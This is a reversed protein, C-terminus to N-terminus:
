LLVHLAPDQAKCYSRFIDALKQLPDGQIRELLALAEPFRGLERLLEAKMLLTGEDSEDLIAVLAEMNARRAEPSSTPETDDSKPPPAPDDGFQITSAGEPGRHPANSKWWALTRLERERYRDEPANELAEYYEAESPEQISPAARLKPLNGAPGLPDFSGKQEAQDLWYLSKCSGCRIFSPPQPFMPAIMKGDTWRRAGFTNGSLTAAYWAFTKCSPCAVVQIPGSAM